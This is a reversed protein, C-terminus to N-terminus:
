LLLGEHRLLARKVEVGGGFGTVSGNAGIVRHCPIVIAIPNRGNALGVARSADANGVRKALTGYSITEGFPIERLAAWVRQQFATGAPALPLDFTRRTGALYDVLQSRADALLADEDDRVWAADISWPEHRHTAFRLGVIADGQALLTLVGVGVPADVTTFRVADVEAAVAQSM